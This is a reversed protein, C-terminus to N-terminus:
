SFLYLCFVFAESGLQPFVGLKFRQVIWGQFSQLLFVLFAAPFDCLM